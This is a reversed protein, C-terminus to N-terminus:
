AGPTRTSVVQVTTVTPGDKTALVRVTDGVSISTASSAVLRSAADVQYTTAFGDSSRVALSSGKTYATVEGVQFLMTAASGSAGTVFEGHLIGGLGSMPGLGNPLGGQGRGGGLGNGDDPRARQGFPAAGDDPRGRGTRGDGYGPM